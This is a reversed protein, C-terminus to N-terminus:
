KTRTDLPNESFTGFFLDISIVRIDKNRALLGVNLTLVLVHIHLACNETNAFCYACDSIELSEWGSKEISIVLSILATM